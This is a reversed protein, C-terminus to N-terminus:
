KKKASKKVVKAVVKGGARKKSASAQKYTIPFGNKDYGPRGKASQRSLDTLTKKAENEYDKVVRDKNDTRSYRSIDSMAGGLDSLKDQFYKTSDATKESKYPSVYKAVEKGKQAKKVTKSVTKKM